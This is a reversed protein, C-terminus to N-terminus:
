IFNQCISPKHGFVENVPQKKKKWPQNRERERILANLRQTLFFFSTASIQLANIAHALPSDDAARTKVM